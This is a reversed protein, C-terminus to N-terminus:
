RRDDGRSRGNRTVWDRVKVLVATLGAAGWRVALTGALSPLGKAGEPVRDASVPEVADVDLDLLEARLRRALGASAEEDGDDAPIIRVILDSGEVM